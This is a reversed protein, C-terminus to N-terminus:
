FGDRSDIRGRLVRHMVGFLLALASGILAVWAAWNGYRTYFTVSSSYIPVDAIMFAEEFPDLLEVIQGNPDIVSTMGSNTSRVVSRQNEAARFVAMAMHQMQAPVSRSWGDNTLNIIVDAGRRVFERSLYGFTDEFCIPTAFQVGDTEFITYDDGAEWFTTDNEVLLRHLWPFSSEYPFHETFPVLHLKRYTQGFEQDEHLLVANYDVRELSGDLNRSLRADSNGLVFPVRQLSLYTRLERVLEFTEANPRYRTHYEIAPVFSTESWVVIDPNAALARDSQRVLAALSDRYAEIGGRWPDINQQVAGVRWSRADSYDIRSAWGYGLVVGVIAVYAIGELRHARAFRSFETLRGEVIGAALFASPFVVLASVGWVGTISSLRVLPSVMYQSYGIIGYAYGLFGQLRLYEYAVWIGVQLLYGYRPFLTEALKLLPFLVAFYVAYIVPVIFIALPHFNLLWYNLLSYTLFGYLLGYLWITSWRSRHVVIFLPVLSVYALPFWGWESIISPFAFSFLAASLFILVLDALVEGTRATVGSRLKGLVANEEALEKAVM